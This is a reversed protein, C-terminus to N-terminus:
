PRKFNRSTLVSPELGRVMILFQYNPGDLLSIDNGNSDAGTKGAPLDKDLVPMKENVNSALFALRLEGEPSFTLSVRQLKM